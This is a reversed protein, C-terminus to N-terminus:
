PAALEGSTAPRRLSAAWDDDELASVTLATVVAPGWVLMEVLRDSVCGRLRGKERGGERSARRM